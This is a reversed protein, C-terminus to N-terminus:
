SLIHEANKFGFEEKRLESIRKIRLVKCKRLKPDKFRPAIFKNYKLKWTVKFFGSDKKDQSM